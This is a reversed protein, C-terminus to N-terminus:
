NPAVSVTVTDSYAGAVTAISDLQVSLSRTQGANAVAPWGNWTQDTALSVGSSYPSGSVILKYPVQNTGSVMQGANASSFTVSASGGYNCNVTVSEAGQSSLSAMDLNDFPGNLYASINCEKPLTGSLPVEVSTDANVAGASVALAVCSAFTRLKM